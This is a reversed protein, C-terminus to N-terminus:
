VNSKRRNQVLAWVTRFCVSTITIGIAIGLATKVLIMANEFALPYNEALVYTMSYYLAKGPILPLIGPLQIISSPVKIVRSIIEVYLVTLITAIFHPFFIGIGCLDLLVYTTCAILSALTSFTIYKPSLHFLVSFGVTTLCGFLITLVINM